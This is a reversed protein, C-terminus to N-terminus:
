LALNVKMGAAAKLAQLAGYAFALALKDDQGIWKELHKEHVMAKANLLLQPMRAAVDAGLKSLEEDSLSRMKPVKRGKRAAKLQKAEEVQRIVRRRATKDNGAAKAAQVLEKQKDKDGRANTAIDKAMTKTITGDKVAEKVAEDADALALISTVHMQKRGVAKCIQAVTMGAAKMKTYAACEELPLFPKGDNAVFMQILDTTDDQSKDVIIIPVGEAFEHGDKLLAEISTLRRDGDILEFVFGKSLREDGASIRKVRLPQMLGNAKISAKLGDIDGFDFRPNFGVRRTITRPDGFYSNSRKLIGPAESRGSGTARAATKAAMAIVSQAVEAAQASKQNPTPTTM